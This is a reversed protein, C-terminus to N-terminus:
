FLTSQKCNLEVWKKDSMHVGFDQAEYSYGGFEFDLIIAEDTVVYICLLQYM